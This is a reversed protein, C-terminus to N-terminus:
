EEVLEVASGPLAAVDARAPRTEGMRAVYMWPAGAVRRIASLLRTFRPKETAERAQRGRRDAAAQRLIDSQVAAGYQAKFTPDM